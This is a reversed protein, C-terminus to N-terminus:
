QRCDILSSSNSLRRNFRSYEDAWLWWRLWRLICVVTLSLPLWTNSSRAVIQLVQRRHLNHTLRFKIRSINMFAKTHSRCNDFINGKYRDNLKHLMKLTLTEFIHRYWSIIKKAIPQYFIGKCFLLFLITLSNYFLFLEKFKQCHQLM